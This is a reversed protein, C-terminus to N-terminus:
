LPSMSLATFDYSLIRTRRESTTELVRSRSFRLARFGGHVVGGPQRPAASEDKARAGECQSNRWRDAGLLVGLVV